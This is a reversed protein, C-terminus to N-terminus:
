KKRTRAKAKRRAKSMASLLESEAPKEKTKKATLKPEPQIDKKGPRKPRKTKVKATAVKTEVEREKKRLRMINPIAALLGTRRQFVELLLLVVAAILLWRGIYIMRKQKPIDNWIDPLSLREVGGTVSALKAMVPAGKDDSAPQFEPSYPLCVPWLAAPGHGAVNVTSLYTDTGDLAFEAALTDADIYRMSMKRTQPPKGPAGLLTVVDPLDTLPQGQREPDLYLKITCSGDKVEQTLLMDPGLSSQEGAVWRAM